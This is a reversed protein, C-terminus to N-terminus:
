QSYKLTLLRNGQQPTQLLLLIEGPQTTQSFRIVGGCMLGLDSSPRKPSYEGGASIYRLYVPRTNDDGSCGIMLVGGERTQYAAVVRDFNSDGFIIPTKQERLDSDFTHMSLRQGVTAVLDYSGARAQMTEFLLPGTPTAVALGASTNDHRVSAVINGKSDLAILLTASRLDQARKQTMEEFVEEDTKFAPFVLVRTAAFIRNNKGVFIGACDFLQGNPNSFTSTDAIIRRGQDASLYHEWLLQGAGDTLAINQTELHLDEDRSSSMNTQIYNDGSKAACHFYHGKNIASLVVPPSIAGDTNIRESFDMIGYVTKQDVIKSLNGAVWYSGDASLGAANAVAGLPLERRWLIAGASSIKYASSGGGRINTLALFGGEPLVTAATVTEAHIFDNTGGSIFNDVKVIQVDPASASSTNPKSISKEDPTVATLATGRSSLVPTVTNIPADYATIVNSLHLSTGCAKDIEELKKAKLDPDLPKGQARVWPIYQKLACHLGMSDAQSAATPAQAAPNQSNPTAAQPGAKVCNAATLAILIFISKAFVPHSFM